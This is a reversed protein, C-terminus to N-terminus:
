QLFSKIFANCRKSITRAYSQSNKSSLTREFILNGLFFSLSGQNNASYASLFDFYKKGEPDWVEVGCAKEFVVELPKYSKKENKLKKKKKSIRKVQSM